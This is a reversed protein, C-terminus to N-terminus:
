RHEGVDRQAPPNSLDRGGSLPSATTECEVDPNERTQPDSHLSSLAMQLLVQLQKLAALDIVPDSVIVPDFTEPHCMWTPVLTDVSDSTLVRYHAVGQLSQTWYTTVTQGALPHFPYHM